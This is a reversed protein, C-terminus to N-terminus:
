FRALIIMVQRILENEGAVISFTVSAQDGPGSTVPMVIKEQILYADPSVDAYPTRGGYGVRRRKAPKPGGVGGKGTVMRLTSSPNILSM